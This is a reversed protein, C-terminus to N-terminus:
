KEKDAGAGSPLFSPDKQFTYKDLDCLKVYGRPKSLLVGHPLPVKRRKKFVVDGEKTRLLNTHDTRESEPSQSFNSICPQAEPNSVIHNSNMRRPTYRLKMKKKAIM